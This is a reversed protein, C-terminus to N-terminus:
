GHVLRVLCAGATRVQTMNFDSVFLNKGSGNELISPDGVMTGPESSDASEASAALSARM